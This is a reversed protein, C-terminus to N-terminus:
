IGIIGRRKLYEAVMHSSDGPKGAARYWREIFRVYNEFDIIIIFASELESILLQSHKAKSTLYAYNQSVINRTLSLWEV